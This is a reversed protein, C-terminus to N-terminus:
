AWYEGINIQDDTSKSKGMCGANRATPCKGGGDAPGCTKVKKSQVPVLSAALLRSVRTTSNTTPYITNNLTNGFRAKAGNSYHISRLLGTPLM